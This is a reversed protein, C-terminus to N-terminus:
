VMFTVPSAFINTLKVIMPIGKVSLNAFYFQIYWLQFQFELSIEGSVCSITKKSINKGKWLLRKEPGMSRRWYEKKDRSCQSWSWSPFEPKKTSMVRTLCFVLLTIVMKRGVPISTSILWREMLKASVKMSRTIFTLVVMRSTRVVYDSLEKRLRRITCFTYKLKIPIDVKNGDVPYILIISM